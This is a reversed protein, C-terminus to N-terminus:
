VDIDSDVTGSIHIYENVNRPRGIIFVSELSPIHIGRASDSSEILITNDTNIINNIIFKGNEDNFKNNFNEIINYVDENSKRKTKNINENIDDNIGLEHHLIKCEINNKKIENKIKILSGNSVFIITKSTNNKLLEVLKNLKSDISNDHSYSYYHKVSDPITVYRGTVTAKIKNRILSTCNGNGKRYLEFLRNIKRLHKRTLSASACVFKVNNPSLNLISECINYASGPNNYLKQKKNETSYQNPVKILRDTEDLFVYDISQLISRTNKKDTKLLLREFDNSSGVIFIIDQNIQSIDTKDDIILQIVKDDNNSFKSIQADNILNIFVQKASQVALEKTPCLILVRSKSKNNKINHENSYNIENLTKYNKFLGNFKNSTLIQPNIRYYYKLVMYLLVAFTKGSSTYSHIIVDMGKSLQEFLSKQYENLEHFGENSLVKHISNILPKNNFISDIDNDIDQIKNIPENTFSKGYHSINDNYTFDNYINDLKNDYKVIEKLRINSDFKLTSNISFFNTIPTNIFRSNHHHKLQNNHNSIYLLSNSLLNFNM